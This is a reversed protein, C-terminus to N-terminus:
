RKAASTPHPHRERYEDRLMRWRYCEEPFVGTMTPWDWGFPDSSSYEDFMGIIQTAEKVIEDDSMAKVDRM